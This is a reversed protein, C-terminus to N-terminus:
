ALSSIILAGIFLMQVHKVKLEHITKSFKTRINVHYFNFVPIFRQLVISNEVFM